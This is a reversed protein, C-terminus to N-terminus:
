FPWVATIIRDGWGPTQRETVVGSGTYQIRANAIFTSLVTNDRSIDEPRVMGTLVIVQQENNLFVERMGRIVLNGNPLVDTVVATMKTTMTGSRETKGTGAFDSGFSGEILVDSPINPNKARLATMGGFAAAVDATLKNSRGLDTSADHAAASKEVVVVTLLDNVTRAKVDAFLMTTSTGEQWLSGESAYMPGAGSIVSPM